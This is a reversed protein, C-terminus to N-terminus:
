INFEHYRIGLGNLEALAVVLTFIMMGALSATTQDYDFRPSVEAIDFAVVKNFGVIHKIMQVVKEPHLGLPQPASVGPAHASSFVDACITLYIADHANIFPQIKFLTHDVTVNEIDSALIHQVGLNRATKFLDVTNGSKQIGLCLYGYHEGSAQCQDAIQRFMTGSTGYESYPRIDFHADFNLIGLKTKLSKKRYYSRIGRDNGLAVSHDGGLVIPFLGKELLREVAFALKEQIGELDKGEVRLNGFDYIKLGQQFACPRNKMEKRISDPGNITGMRGLNREVGVDSCFGIIGIGLEHTWEYRDMLRLDVCQIWQHWRFADYDEESDIRGSWFCQDMPEYGRALEKLKSDQSFVIQVKM